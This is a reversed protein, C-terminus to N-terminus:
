KLRFVGFYERPRAVGDAEGEPETPCATQTSPTRGLIRVEVRGNELLSVVVTADQGAMPGVSPRALLIFNRLRSPGPFDLESLQDHPLAAMPELVTDQFTGDDTTIRNLESAPVAGLPAVALEADFRLTLRTSAPFCSRVFNGAIIPGEYSGRFESLDGCAAATLLLAAFLPPRAFPIRV